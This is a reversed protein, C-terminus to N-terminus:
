LLKRYSLLLGTFFYEMILMFSLTLMNAQFFVDFGHNHKWTEGLLYTWAIVKDNVSEGVISDQRLIESEIQRNLDFYTVIYYIEFLKLFVRGNISLPYGSIKWVQTLKMKIFILIEYIKKLKKLFM